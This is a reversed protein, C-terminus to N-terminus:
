MRGSAPLPRKKGRQRSLVQVLVRRNQAQCGAADCQAVPQDRGVAIIDVMGPALGSSILMDRVAMARQRSLREDEARNQGDFAHGIVRIRVDSQTALWDAQRQLAARAKPSITASRRTFFVRDGTAMLLAHQRVPDMVFIPKELKEPRPDTKNSVSLPPPIARDQSKSHAGQQQPLSINLRTQIGGSALSLKRKSIIVLYRKSKRASISGPFQKIITKFRHEAAGYDGTDFDYQAEDFYAEHDDMSGSINAGGAKAANLRENQERVQEVHLPKSTRATIQATTAPSQAILFQVVCVVFGSTFLIRYM